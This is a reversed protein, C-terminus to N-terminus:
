LLELWTTMQVCVGNDKDVILGAFNDDADLHWQGQSCYTWGLQRRCGFAM